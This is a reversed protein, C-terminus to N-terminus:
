FSIDKQRRQLQMRLQATFHTLPTNIAKLPAAAFFKELFVFSPTNAIARAATSM